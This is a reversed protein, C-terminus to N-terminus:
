DTEFVQVATNEVSDRLNKINAETPLLNVSLKAGALVGEHKKCRLSPLCHGRDSRKPCELMIYCSIYAGVLRKCKRVRLLATLAEAQPKLRWMCVVAV